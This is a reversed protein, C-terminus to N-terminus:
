FWKKSIFSAGHEDYEERSLADKSFDPDASSLTAGTWSAPIEGGEVNVVSVASGALLLRVEHHLRAAFGSFLTNGGALVVNARLASQEEVTCQLLASAVTQQIGSSEPAFIAEPALVRAKDFDVITGEPLEYEVRLAKADYQEVSARDAAVFCYREKMVRASDFEWPTTFSWGNLEQLLQVMRKTISEGSAGHRVLLKTEARGSLVPVVYSADWGSVCVLATADKREAHVRAAAAAQSIMYLSPINFSEFMIETAKTRQAEDALDHQTVILPREEPACRLEQYFIFSWIKQMWDWNQVRGESIPFVERQVRRAGRM